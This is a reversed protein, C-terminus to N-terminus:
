KLLSSWFFFTMMSNQLTIKSDNEFSLYDAGKAGEDSHMISFIVLQDHYRALLM